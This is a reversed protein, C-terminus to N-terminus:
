PMLSVPPRLARSLHYQTGHVDRTGLLKGLDRFLSMNQPVYHLLERQTFIKFIDEDDLVKRMNHYLEKIVLCLLGRCHEREGPNKCLPNAVMLGNAHLMKLTGLDANQITALTAHEEVPIFNFVEPHKNAMYTLTMEDWVGYWADYGVYKKLVQRIDESFVAAMTYTEFKEWFEECDWREFYFFGTNWRNINMKHQVGSLPFPDRLWFVDSDVYMVNEHEQGPWQESWDKLDFFRSLHQWGAVRGAHAKMTQRAEDVFFGLKSPFDGWDEKPRGSMDLVCIPVDSVARLTAISLIIPTRLNAYPKDDGPHDWWHYVAITNKNDIM